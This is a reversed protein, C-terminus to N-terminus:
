EGFCLGGIGIVAEPVDNWARKLLALLLHLATFYESCSCTVTVIGSIHQTEFSLL